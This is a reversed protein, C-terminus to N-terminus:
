NTHNRRGLSRLKRDLYHQRSQSSRVASHSFKPSQLCRVRCHLRFSSTRHQDSCDHSNEAGSRHLRHQLHCPLLLWFCRRLGSWQRRSLHSTGYDDGNYLTRWDDGHSRGDDSNRHCYRVANHHEGLNERLRESDTDRCCHPSHSYLWHIRACHLCRQDPSQLIRLM